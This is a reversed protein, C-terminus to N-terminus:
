LFVLQKLLVLQPKLTGVETLTKRPSEYNILLKHTGAFSTLQPPYMLAEILTKRPSEYNILLKHTEKSTREIRYSSM